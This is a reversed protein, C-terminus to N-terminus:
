EIRGFCVVYITTTNIYIKDRWNHVSLKREVRSLVSMVLLHIVSIPDHSTSFIINMMSLDKMNDKMQLVETCIEFCIQAYVRYTTM